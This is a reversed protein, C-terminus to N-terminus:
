RQEPRLQTPAQPRANAHSSAPTPVPKPAGSPPQPEPGSTRPRLSQQSTTAALKAVQEQSAKLLEANRAVDRVVQQHNEQIQEVAKANDSVMAHLLEVKRELEALDRAMTELSTPPEPSMQVTTADDPKIQAPPEAAALQMVRKPFAFVSALQPARQEVTGRYSSQSLVAAAIIYAALLLGVIGRLWPRGRSPQPHHYHQTAERGHGSLQNGMRALQEDASKIQEYTHALQEDVRSMLADRMQKIDATTDM